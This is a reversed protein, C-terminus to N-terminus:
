TWNIILSISDEKELEVEEYRYPDSDCAKFIKNQDEKILSLNLERELWIGVEEDKLLDGIILESEESSAEVFESYLPKSYPTPVREMFNNGRSDKALSIVSVNIKSYCNENFQFWLKIGVVDVGTENKLILGLYKNSNASKISYISIDNFFNGLVSNPTLSNSRFGGLSLSPKSQQDGTASSVTYYLKM